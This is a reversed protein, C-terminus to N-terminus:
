IFIKFDFYFLNKSLDGMFNFKIIGLNQLQIEVALQFAQLYQCKRM